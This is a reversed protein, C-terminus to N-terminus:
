DLDFRFDPDAQLDFYCGLSKVSQFGFYECKVGDVKTRFFAGVYRRVDAFGECNDDSPAWDHAYHSSESFILESM